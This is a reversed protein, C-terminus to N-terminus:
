VPANPDSAAPLVIRARTGEADSALELRGGNAMALQRTLALGLRVRAEPPSGMDDDLPQGAQLRERVDAPLGPGNDAVEVWAEGGAGGTSVHVTAGGGTHAIANSLLNILMQRLDTPSASAMPSGTRAVGGLRVGSRAALLAMSAVVDAALGALDVPALAIGAGVPEPASGVIRGIVALAHRATERIGVLYAVHRRDLPGLHGSALADATAQIAALPSRLEHALHDIDQPDPGAIREERTSAAEASPRARRETM